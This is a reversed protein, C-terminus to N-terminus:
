RVIDFGLFESTSETWSMERGRIMPGLGSDNVAETFAELEEREGEAVLKVRGDELNQVTGTVDFGCVLRKM